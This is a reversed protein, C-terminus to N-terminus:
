HIQQWIHLFETPSLIITQGYRKIPLIHKTDGTILFDARVHHTCALIHNDTKDNKIRTIEKTPTVITAFRHLLKMYTTIEKSSWQFKLKLVRTTEELIFDSLYLEVAGFRALTMIEDPTGGFVIASILINTDVVIKLM